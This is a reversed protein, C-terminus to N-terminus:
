EDAATVLGLDSLERLWADVDAEATEADVEFESRLADVLAARSAPMALQRWLVDGTANLEFYTKSVPDLVVGGRPTRTHIADPRIRFRRTM